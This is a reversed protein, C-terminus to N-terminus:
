LSGLIDSSQSTRNVVLDDRKRDAQERYYRLIIPIVLNEFRAITMPVTCSRERLLDQIEKTVLLAGYLSLRPDREVPGPANAYEWALLAASFEVCRKDYRLTRCELIQEELRM